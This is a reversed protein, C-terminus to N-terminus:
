AILIVLFTLIALGVTVLDGVLVMNRLQNDAQFKLTMRYQGDEPCPFAFSLKWGNGKAVEEGEEVRSQAEGGLM